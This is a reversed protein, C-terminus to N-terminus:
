KQLGLALRGQGLKTTNKKVKIRATTQGFDLYTPCLKYLHKIPSPLIHFEFLVPLFTLLYKKAKLAHLCDM